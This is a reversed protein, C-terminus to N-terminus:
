NDGTIEECQSPSINRFSIIYDGQKGAFEIGAVGGKLETRQVSKSSDYSDVVTKSDHQRIVVTDNEDTADIRLIGGTLSANWNVAMLKRNELTELRLKRRFHKDYRKGAGLLVALEDDM